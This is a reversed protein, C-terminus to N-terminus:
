EVTEARQKADPNIGVELQGIDADVQLAPAGAVASTNLDRVAYQPLLYFGGSLRMTEEFVV